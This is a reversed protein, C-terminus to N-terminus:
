LQGRRRTRQGIFDQLFVVSLAVIAVPVSAFAGSWVGLGEHHDLWATLGISAPHATATSVLNLTAMLRWPLLCTGVRM